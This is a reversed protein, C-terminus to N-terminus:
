NTPLHYRIEAYVGRENLPYDGPIGGDSPEYAEEDFLNRISAAFEWNGKGEGIKLNKRRLTMNVLTYDDIEERTDTEARDRDGIWSLQSSLEWEPQLKWRADLYFQQQAVYGVQDHTNDNKTSQYAYNALVKLQKNIQWAGEIEFGKGTLSKDNQANKTGDLNGIFDIMDKTEYYYLNLATTFDTSVEYNFALETTKITEPDLDPNGLVIPNNQGYLESFAPARFATAYLLKTILKDTPTWVLAGRFNTTSGFDSYDDYRLGATLTWDVDFEWIDQVSIYKITRDEDPIYIYPTGTVDTLTGDIPSVTGDIVNTGFNKTAKTELKEQKGGINFRWNHNTWGDYLAIIDLQPIKNERGPNGIVGDPFSVPNFPSTFLNGDSGILSVNGPPFINLYFQQDIYQYSLKGTLEVDDFWDKNTYELSFLVQDLDAYGDEDLAQAIGAGQGIDRQAWGDIGVKWHENSLHINYTTSEYRRDFHGPALSANTGFLADLSTQADSGIKRSKDAGQDMYEINFALDWGNGITGGYQGWVNQTDFSGGKVGMHFGNMEQASKTIINVVGSFADAGYVASGSGRVVEIRSIHQVNIIGSSPFIASSADASIRYGNLLILVQPTQATQVGRVSIVSSATLTSPSIHIGPVSELVEYLTTAGMAKIDKATILSAVAPAKELPVATGTAIEVLPLDYLGELSIENLISQDLESYENSAPSAAQSSISMLIGIIISIIYFSSAHQCTNLNRTEFFKM